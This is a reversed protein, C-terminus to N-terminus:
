FNWHSMSRRIKDFNRRIESRSMRAVEDRTYFEKAPARGGFDGTSPPPATRERHSRVAEYACLPDVGAACIALFQPGLEEVSAASEEPHAARISALDDAFFRAQERQRYGELERQVADQAAANQSQQGRRAALLGALLAPSLPPAAQAKRADEQAQAAADQAQRDAANEGREAPAQGARDASCAPVCEAAGAPEEEAATLAAREREEM